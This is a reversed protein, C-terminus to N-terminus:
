AITIRKLIKRLRSCARSIDYFTSANSNMSKMKEFRNNAAAGVVTAWDEVSLDDLQQIIKANQMM